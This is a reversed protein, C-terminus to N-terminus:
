ILYFFLFLFSITNFNLFKFNMSFSLLAIFVIFPLLVLLPNFCTFAIYTKLSITALYDESFM